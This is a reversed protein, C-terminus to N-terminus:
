HLDEYRTGGLQGHDHRPVSPATAALGLALLVLRTRALNM